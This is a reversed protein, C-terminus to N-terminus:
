GETLSGAPCFALGFALFCNFVAFGDSLFRWRGAWSLGAALSFLSGFVASLFWSFLPLSYNYPPRNDAEPLLGIFM